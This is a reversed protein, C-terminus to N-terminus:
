ENIQSRQIEEYLKDVANSFKGIDVESIYRAFDIRSKGMNLIKRMEADYWDVLSRDLGVRKLQDGITNPWVCLEAYKNVFFISIQRGTDQIELRVVVGSEAPNITIREKERYKDILSRVAIYDNPRQAKLLEWFAEETLTVRKRRKEESDIKEQRIEVQYDKEPKLTIQVISREVIETRSVIHPVVLLPWNEKRSWKYCHLEVLAVDTALHPYKNVYNLMEVVSQRIKDGVILTLFRGLRLNKAVIDEFFDRGGEVPGKQQEVWDLLNLEINEYEKTYKKTEENLRNYSWKSLSSGYDIAQAIVERKAEPNRWLKTEILVLYGRQSIFLNDIIGTETIVEVGIPILPYFVTEIENVPLIDPQKRILEQLWAEDYLKDKSKIPQLCKGSASQDILFPAIKM